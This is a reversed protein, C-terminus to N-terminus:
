VGFFAQLKDLSSGWQLVQLQYAAAAAAAAASLNQGLQHWNLM